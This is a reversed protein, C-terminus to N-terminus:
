GRKEIIEFRFVDQYHIAHISAGAKKFSDLLITMGAKGPIHPVAGAPDSARIIRSIKWTLNKNLNLQRAVEQPHAPDAGVSALLEAFSSRVRSIVTKVHDEFLPVEDTGSLTPIRAM